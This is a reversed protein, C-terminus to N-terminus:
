SPVLSRASMKPELETPLVSVVFRVLAMVFAGDPLTESPPIVRDHGHVLVFRPPGVRGDQM